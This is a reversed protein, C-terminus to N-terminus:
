EVVESRFIEVGTSQQVRQSIAESTHSHTKLRVVSTGSRALGVCDASVLFDKGAEYNRRAVSRMDADFSFTM